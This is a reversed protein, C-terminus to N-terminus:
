ADEYEAAKERIFQRWGPDGFADAVTFIDKDGRGSQNIVIVDEPSLTSADEFAQAFAHSSELAPILGELRMALSLAAVVEADTASEFRVRGTQKLHALIPSVGVYDLGAAISHTERMQGDADQLFFTKYGQAVGVSADASALRSAHAGTALGRGAAEVGILEVDAADLFGSFIGMANSGGGVCAYVSQPLRGTQERVQRRTEQGVISQFWTVMEPFPHPGCVTGLVYHTTDMNTVWDRFAENIADKLIRTGETVPVVEAGLREMWFVNPRQREVDVEGMYITCELGFRAAMTATAVGHQGAGTEAIVRGKGMRRVLLGQGMVNNVKHAGTHNLDERKIYIRAGGFHRTLNEAFTLPTPRCSYNGMIAEYESWFDPDARAAEFAQTLEDFTAVLIEPIYAGGFDGYYGREHM